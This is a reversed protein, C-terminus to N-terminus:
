PGLDIAQNTVNLFMDEQKIRCMETPNVAQKYNASQVINNNKKREFNEVKTKGHCDNDVLLDYKLDSLTGVYNHAGIELKEGFKDGREQSAQSADEPKKYLMIAEPDDKVLKQNVM